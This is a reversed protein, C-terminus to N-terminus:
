DVRRRKNQPEFADEKDNTPDEENNRDTEDVQEDGAAEEVATQEKEVGAEDEARYLSSVLKGNFDIRDFVHAKGDRLAIGLKPGDKTSANSGQREADAAKRKKPNAIQNVDDLPIAYQPKLFHEPVSVNPYQDRFEVITQGFVRWEAIGLRDVDAPYEDTEAQKKVANTDRPAPRPGKPDRAERAENVKELADDYNPKLYFKALGVTRILDNFYRRLAEMEYPKWPERTPRKTYAYHNRETVQRSWRNYEEGSKKDNIDFERLRRDFDKWNSGYLYQRLMQHNNRDYGRLIFKPHAFRKAPQKPAPTRYWEYTKGEM